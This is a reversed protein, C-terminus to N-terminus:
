KKILITRIAGMAKEREDRQVVIKGEGHFFLFFEEKKVLRRRLNM